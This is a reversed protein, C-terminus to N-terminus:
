QFHLGLGKYIESLELKLEGRMQRDACLFCYVTTVPCSVPGLEEMSISGLYKRVGTKKFLARACAEISMQKQRMYLALKLLFTWNKDAQQEPVPCEQVIAVLDIFLQSYHAGPYPM